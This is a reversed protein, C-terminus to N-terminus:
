PQPPCTAGPAPPPPPRGSTPIPLPAYVCTGKRARVNLFANLYDGKIAKMVQDTFPFTLLVQLSQPLARGANALERLTPELAKFDAVTQAKSKTITAVTVDSLRHLANLLGVLQDRQGSLVRLGPALNDLTFGIQRDRARLSAALQDLGDLAATIDARHANLDATLKGVEVLMSRIQPENGSFAQNLEVTITHLQAIGGGNLLLSLAGLVQEVTANSTTRYVPITAGDRLRGQGGGVGQGGGPPPSLAVYQEGLLSSQAIEAIANAPLHVRGNVLMSVHAYWSGPPLWIRVVRGVAVNNVRVASQPVLDLINTFVATVKYPHSGLPAGGPLLNYVGNFGGTGCAALVTGAALVAGATLVTGAALALGALRRSRLRGTM